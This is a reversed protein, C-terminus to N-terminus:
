NLSQYLHHFHRRLEEQVSGPLPSEFGETMEDIKEHARQLMSTGQYNGGSFDFLDHNFFESSRLNEITLDDTLFNGGPGAAELSELAQSFSDFEIGRNLHEVAEFWANQMLMMEASMGVANYYSGIGSLLDAGTACAAQMFAMGEAGNQSDYRFTMGGGCAASTPLKYSAAMRWIADTWLATDLMYYRDHGARMDTVSAGFGYAIPTGPKIMQTLATMFINEANGQLLVAAKSYPATTGAMPCITTNILFGSECADILMEANWNGVVFPSVVAAAVSLIHSKGPDRGGALIRAITKFDHYSELSAPMFMIHKNQHLLHTELARLSSSADDTDTVPFDMRSMQVVRELKQGIITHKRVDELNPRRPQGTNYDIVWPDTVIASFGRKTGGRVHERGDLGAIVYQKPAQALLERLFKRPLRIRYNSEDVAAGANKAIKLIGDHQVTFGVKELLYETGERVQDVQSDSIRKKEM